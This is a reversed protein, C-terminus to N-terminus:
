GRAGFTPRRHRARGGPAATRCITGVREANQQLDHDVVYRPRRHGGGDVGSQRRVDLLSIRAGLRHVEARGVVGGLAIGNGIGKAFTVLDPVVGYAQYGWYHDGTRGWGTQVEDAIFLIRARRPGEKRGSTRRRGHAFGGVGQIPEAILAAVDGGATVTALVERLDEVATDIHDADSLGAMRGRIAPIDAGVM